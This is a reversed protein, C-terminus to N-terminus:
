EGVLKPTYGPLNESDVSPPIQSQNGNPSGVSTSDPSRPTSINNIKAASKTSQLKAVPQVAVTKQINVSQRQFSYYM